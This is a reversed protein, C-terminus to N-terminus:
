FKKGRQSEISVPVFDPNILLIAVTNLCHQGVVSLVNADAFM